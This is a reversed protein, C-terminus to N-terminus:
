IENGRNTYLKEIRVGDSNIKRVIEDIPQKKYLNCEYLDKCYFKEVKTYDFDQGNLVVIEYDNICIGNFRKSKIKVDDQLNLIISDEYVNYKNILETPFDFNVILQSKSLSKRKNNTVVIMVGYQEMIQTELNKFLNINNTVINIRKYEKVIKKLFYIVNETVQNALISISIESKLLNNKKCIYELSMNSLIQFLWKGDVIDLGQSYLYNLYQDQKKIEKSVVIKKCNSTKIIKYTKTALKEAQKDTLEEKQIPLIIENDKLRISNFFKLIKCPKDSEQIYYM